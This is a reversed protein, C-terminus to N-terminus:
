GKKPAQVGLEKSQNTATEVASIMLSRLGKAELEHIAHITTGGPTTVADKLLAPHSNTNELIECSGKLTQLVLKRSIDRPIGVKVGGDILAEVIMFIYAPGSGSLGTVADMLSEDVEVVVGITSFLKKAVEVQEKDVCEQDYCIATSSESVTAAINPMARIVACKKQSADSLRALTIGALVSIVLSGPKLRQSLWGSVDDLHHPKVCLLVLDFLMKNSTDQPDFFNAGVDKPLNTARTDYVFVNTEILPASTMGRLISGGINGIGVILVNRPKM